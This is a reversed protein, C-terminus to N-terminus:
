ILVVIGYVPRSTKSSYDNNYCYLIKFVKYRNVIVLIVNAVEETRIKIPPLGTIFDM